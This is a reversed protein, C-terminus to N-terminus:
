EFTATVDIIVSELRKKLQQSCSKGATDTKVLRSKGAQRYNSAPIKRGNGSNSAAPNEPPIQLQKSPNEPRLKEPLPIYFTERWLGSPQSKGAPDTTEPRSKGATTKREHPIKFFEIPPLCITRSHVAHNETRLVPIKQRSALVFLSKECHLLTTTAYMSYHALLKSNQQFPFLLFPRKATTHNPDEWTGGGGGGVHCVYVQKVSLLLFSLSSLTSYGYYSCKDLYLLQPPSPPQGLYSSLLFSNTKDMLM